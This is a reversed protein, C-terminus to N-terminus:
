KTKIFELIVTELLVLVPVALLVGATGGIKGGVVLAILTAIPHVGVAKKMVLPVILNNEFQQIVFYLAITIYATFYGYSLGVFFAPVASLIPGLTPVVELLGALVALSLAYRMGILSLGIYSLIGIVTMLIIEGWFWSNMRHEAKDIITSIRIATEQDLFKTLLNKFGNEEVLFYFGFFVTSIFFVVNSFFGSAFKFFQDTINPIFQFLSGTNLNFASFVGPFSNRIIDPLQKIFSATETVLPPLIISFLFIMATIFLIYIVLAGALRPIRRKELFSVFPKLASMIIFAILLSLILDTIMFIFRLFLLLLITFVITKSSVEIKQVSGPMYFHYYM